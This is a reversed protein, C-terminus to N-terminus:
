QAVVCVQVDTQPMDFSKCHLLLQRLSSAEERLSLVQARLVANEHELIAARLAIQDERIKRADRSKKAAQNNRRRREFYKEDKQEDPIHRKESRLKKNNSKVTPSIAPNLRSRFCDKQFLKLPHSYPILTEQTFIQKPLLHPYYTKNQPPSCIPLHHLKLQKSDEKSTKLHNDQYSTEFIYSCNKLFSYSPFASMM